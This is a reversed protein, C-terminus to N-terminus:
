LRVASLKRCKIMVDECSESEYAFSRVLLKIFIINILSKFQMTDASCNSCDNQDIEKYHKCLDRRIQDAM